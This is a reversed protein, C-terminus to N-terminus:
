ASFPTRNLRAPPIGAAASPYWYFLIPCNHFCFNPHSLLEPLGHILVAPRGRTSEPLSEPAEPPILTVGGVSNVTSLQQNPSNM